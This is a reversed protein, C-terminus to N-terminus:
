RDPALRAPGSIDRIDEVPAALVASAGTPPAPSDEVASTRSATGGISPRGASPGTSSRPQHTRGGTVPRAGDVWRPLGPEDLRLPRLGAVIEDMIRDTAERVARAGQGVGGLDIPPGFHVRVVPRHTMAWV